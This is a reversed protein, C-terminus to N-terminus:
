DILIHLSFEGQSFGRARGKEEETAGGTVAAAFALSAEIQCHTTDLWLVCCSALGAAQFCAQQGSIVECLTHM